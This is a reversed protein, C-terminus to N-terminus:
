NTAQISAQAALLGSALAIAAMVPTATDGVLNRDILAWGNDIGPLAENVPLAVGHAALTVPAGQHRQDFAFRKICDDAGYNVLRSLGDAVSDYVPQRRVNVPHVGDGIVVAPLKGVVFAHSAVKIGADVERM